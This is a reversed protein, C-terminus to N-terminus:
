GACGCSGVQGGGEYQHRHDQWKRGPQKGPGGVHRLCITDRLEHCTGRGGCDALYGRGGAVGLERDVRFLLPLAPAVCAEDELVLRLTVGLRSRDAIVTEPPWPRGVTAACFEAYDRTHLAFEAWFDGVVVAPMTLRARPHRAGTRFWQRLGAEVAKLGDSGLDTHRQAFRQRM